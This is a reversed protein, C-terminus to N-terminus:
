DQTIYYGDVNDLDFIQGAATHLSILSGSGIVIEINYYLKEVGNLFRVRVKM